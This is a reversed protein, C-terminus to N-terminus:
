ETNTSNDVTKKTNNFNDKTKTNNIKTILENNSQRLQCISVISNCIIGIAVVSWLNLQISYTYKIINESM